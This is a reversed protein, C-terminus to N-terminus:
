AKAFRGVLRPPWQRSPPSKAMDADLHGNRDNQMGNRTSGDLPVGRVSERPPRGLFSPPEVSGVDVSGMIVSRGATPSGHSVAFSSTTSEVVAQHEFPSQCNLELAQSELDLRQMKDVCTSLTPELSKQEPEESTLGLKPLAAHASAIQVHPQDSHRQTDELLSMAGRHRDLENKIEVLRGAIGHDNLIELKERCDHVWHKILVLM